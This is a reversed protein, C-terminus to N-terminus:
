SARSMLPPMFTEFEKAHVHPFYLTLNIDLVKSIEISRIAIFQKNSLNKILAVHHEMNMYKSAPLLKWM